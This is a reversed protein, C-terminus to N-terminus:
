FSLLIKNLFGRKDLLYLTNNSIGIVEQVSINTSPNTFNIPYKTFNTSNLGYFQIKNQLTKIILLNEDSIWAIHESFESSVSKQALSELNILTLSNSKQVALFSNGPSLAYNNGVISLVTKNQTINFLTIKSEDLADVKDFLLLLNDTVVGIKSAKIRTIQRPQLNTTDTVFLTSSRTKYDFKGILYMSKNDRSMHAYMIPTISSIDIKQTLKNSQTDFVLIENINKRDVFTILPESYSYFSLNGEYLTNVKDNVISVLRSNNVDYAILVGNTYLNVDSIFTQSITETKKIEIQTIDGKINELTIDINTNSKLDVEKNVNIYNPKSIVIEHTGKPLKKSFNNISSYKNDVLIEAGSPQVNINLLYQKQILNRIIFLILLFLIVLIGASLVRNTKIKLYLTKILYM